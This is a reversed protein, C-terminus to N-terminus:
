ANNQSRKQFQRDMRTTENKIKARLALKPM